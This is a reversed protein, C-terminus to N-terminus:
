GEHKSKMGGLLTENTLNYNENIQYCPTCENKSKEWLGEMCTCNLKNQAGKQATMLHPCNYCFSMGMSLQFSNRPCINCHYAGTSRSFTGKYM